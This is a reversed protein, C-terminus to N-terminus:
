SLIQGKLVGVAMHILLAPSLCTSVAILDSTLHSTNLFRYLHSDLLVSDRKSLIIEM